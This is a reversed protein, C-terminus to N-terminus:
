SPTPTSDEPKPEPKPVFSVDEFGAEKAASEPTMQAGVMSMYSRARGQLDSARLEKFTIQVMGLKASMEAEVKKALPSLVGFLALRWSERLSASSGAIFLSPNFGCASYIENSAQQALDVLPQEPNAGYRESKLNVYSGELSGWDGNEIVTIGGRAGALDKKFQTVSPDGGDVPLGMMRGVPGGAEDGLARVTEASLKGSLAAVELPSQGRWPTTKHAAYRFHLVSQASINTFSHTRSPGSLTVDYTWTAPSPGGMVNHSQAPLLDVEGGSTDVYFVIEGGRMLSRGILELLDPTIADAITPSEAVVEAVAFGRGTMGTCSELAATAYQDATSNGSLRNVLLAVLSDTYDVARAELKPQWPMKIKM